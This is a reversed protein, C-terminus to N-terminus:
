PTRQARDRIQLLRDGFEGIAFEVDLELRSGM